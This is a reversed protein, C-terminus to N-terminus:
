STNNPCDDDSGRNAPAEEENTVDQVRELCEDDRHVLQPLNQTAVEQKM